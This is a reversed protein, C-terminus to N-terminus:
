KKRVFAAIILSACAGTVLTGIFGFVAQMTPTQFEETLAVQAAAEAESMGSSVLMQTQATRLEEFYHPYAVTTFLLSTGMIILGGIFSMLLGALVQPGYTRGEAATQRLCVILVGIQIPIVLYFALMAVPDKYWGTLGMVFTWLGCLVGILLGGKLTTNM